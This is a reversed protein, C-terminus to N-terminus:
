CAGFLSQLDTPNGLVLVYITVLLSGLPIARLRLSLLSFIVLSLEVFIWLSVSGTTAPSRPQTPATLTAQAQM